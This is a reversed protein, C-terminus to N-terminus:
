TSNKEKSTCFDNKFKTWYKLSIRYLVHVGLHRLEYVFNLQTSCSGTNSDWCLWSIKETRWFSRFTEEARWAAWVPTGPRLTTWYGEDLMLTLFSHLYVEVGRYAKMAHVPVFKGKNVISRDMACSDRTPWSGRMISPECDCGSVVCEKPSRQVLSWSTASVEVQCFVVSVLVIGPAPNSGAIGALSRCCVSAKSREDVPIPM